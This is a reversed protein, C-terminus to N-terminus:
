KLEGDAELAKIAIEVCDATEVSSLCVIADLAKRLRDRSERGQPENGM